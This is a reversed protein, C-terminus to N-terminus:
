LLSEPVFVVDDHQLIFPQRKGKLIKKINVKIKIEKGDKKRKVVVASKRARNTFGGAQAIAKLLTIDGSKKLRMTGPRRVEGFIYIDVYREHPINVIDGPKLQINLEPNRGSMLREIDISQSKNKRIVVVRDSARETLGGARSILQLLTENGMVDYNGPDTVAGIVAVKKSQYENIFVTVQANKLYNKELMQALKKELQAPTLGGVEIEGLLPLTITGDGAIRVRTNLEEVGFVNISLLDQPGITYTNKDPQEETKEQDQDQALAFFGGGATLAFGLLVILISPIIKKFTM